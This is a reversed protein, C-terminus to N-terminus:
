KIIVCPSRVFLQVTKRQSHSFHNYYINLYINYERHCNARLFQEFQENPEQRHFVEGFLRVTSCNALATGHECSSYRAYAPEISFVDIRATRASFRGWISPCFKSGCPFLRVKATDSILLLLGGLACRALTFGFRVRLQLWVRLSNLSSELSM